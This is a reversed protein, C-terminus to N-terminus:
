RGDRSKDRSATLDKWDVYLGRTPNKGRINKEVLEEGNRKYARVVARKLWATEVTVELEHKGMVCTWYLSGTTKLGSPRWKRRRLCWLEIFMRGTRICKYDTKVEVRASGDRSMDAVKHAFLEGQKGAALDRDWGPQYPM